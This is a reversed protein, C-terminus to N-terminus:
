EMRTLFPSEHAVLKNREANDWLQRLIALTATDGSESDRSPCIADSVRVRQLQLALPELSVRVTDSSGEGLTLHLVVPTFGLRRIRLTVAGPPIGRLRFLGDGNAFTAIGIDEITADAFGLPDGTQRATVYGVISASLKTPARQAGLSAGGLVCFWFALVRYTGSVGAVSAAPERDTL